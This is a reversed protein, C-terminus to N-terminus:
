ANLEKIPTKTKTAVVYEAIERKTGLSIHICGRELLLQGFYPVNDRIWKIVKIQGERSELGKINFDVAEGLCHQSTTSGGVKANLTRGRFGSNVRIPVGFNERVPDLLELAVRTLPKKFGEAEKANILVMDTQDTVILEEFNFYRSLNGM